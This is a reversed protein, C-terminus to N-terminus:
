RDTSKVEGLELSSKDRELLNMMALIRRWEEEAVRFARRDAPGYLTSYFLDRLESDRGPLPPTIRAGVAGMSNYFVFTHGQYHAELRRLVAAIELRLVKKAVEEARHYRALAQEYSIQRAEQAATLQRPAPM